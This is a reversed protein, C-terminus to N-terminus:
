ANKLQGWFPLLFQQNPHEDDEDDEDCDSLQINTGDGTEGGDIDMCKEPNTAWRLPGRGGEPIVFQMNEHNCDSVWMQVNNGNAAGGGAVDICDDMDSGWHLPGEGSTAMAFEQNEKLTANCHWVQLNTGSEHKAGSVDLCNEPHTAWKIPGKVLTGTAVTTTVGTTAAAASTTGETTAAAASTTPMAGDGEVGGKSDVSDDLTREAAFKQQSRQLLGNQVSRDNFIAVLRERSIGASQPRMFTRNAVVATAMVLGFSALTMGAIKVMRCGSKKMVDAEADSGSSSGASMSSADMAEAPVYQQEWATAM